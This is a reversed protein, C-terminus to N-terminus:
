MAAVQRSEAQVVSLAFSHVADFVHSLTRLREKSFRIIDEPQAGQFVDVITLAVGKPIVADGDLLFHCVGDAYRPVIWLNSICGAVRFSDVLYQEPLPDISKAQDVFFELRDQLDVLDSM